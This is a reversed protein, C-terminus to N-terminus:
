IHLVLPSNPEISSFYVVLLHERPDQASFTRPFCELDNQWLSFKPDEAYLAPERDKFILRIGCVRSDSGQSTLLESTFSDQAMEDM